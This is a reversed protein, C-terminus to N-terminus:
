RAPQFGQQIDRSPLQQQAVVQDNGRGSYGRMMGAMIANSVDPATAYMVARSGIQHTNFLETTAEVFNTVPPAGYYDALGDNLRRSFVPDKLMQSIAQPNSALVDEIQKDKAISYLKEEFMKRLGFRDHELPISSIMAGVMMEQSVPQGEKRLQKMQALIGPADQCASKPVIKEYIWDVAMSAPIGIVMGILGGIVGGSVSGVVPLAITGIAGGILAGLAMTGASVGLLSGGKGFGRLARKFWGEKAEAVALDEDDQSYGLHMQSLDHGLGQKARAEQLAPDVASAVATGVADITYGGPVVKAVGPVISAAGAFNGITQVTELTKVDNM